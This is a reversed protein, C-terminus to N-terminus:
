RERREGAFCNALEDDAQIYLLQVPQLGFVAAVRIAEEAKMRCQGKCIAYLHDKNVKAVRSLGHLTMGMAKVNGRICDGLRNVREEKGGTM